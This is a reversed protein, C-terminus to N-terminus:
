EITIHYVFCRFGFLYVFLNNYSVMITLEELKPSSTILRLPCLVEDLNSFDMEDIHLVKLNEFHVPLKNQYLAWHCISFWFYFVLHLFWPYHLLFTFQIFVM